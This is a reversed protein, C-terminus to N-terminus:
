LSMRLSVSVMKSSMTPSRSLFVLVRGSSTSATIVEHEQKAGIGDSAASTTCRNPIRFSTCVYESAPIPHPADTTQTSM